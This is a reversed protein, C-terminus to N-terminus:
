PRSEDSFRDLFGSCVAAQLAREDSPHASGLAVGVRGESLWVVKGLLYLSRGALSIRVSAEDGEGLRVPRLPRLSLGHFGLDETFAGGTGAIHGPLSLRLRPSRRRAAGVEGQTLRWALWDRGLEWGHLESEALAADGAIIRRTRAEFDRRSLPQRLM